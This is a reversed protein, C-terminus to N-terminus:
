TRALQGEICKLLVRRIRQLAKYIAEVTRSQEAAIAAVCQEDLYYRHILVRQDDPLYELCHRLAYQRSESEATVNSEAATLIEAARESLLSRRRSARLYRKVEIRVHGCAWAAFSREPDYHDFRKWIAIAADQVIERAENRVPVYMLATRLLEPEHQLFLRVFQEYDVDNKM